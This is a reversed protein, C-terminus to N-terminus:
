DHMGGVVNLRCTPQIQEVQCFADASLTQLASRYVAATRSLMQPLTFDCEYRRRGEEGMAVRLSPDAILRELAQRLEVEDGMPVLFGSRGNTVAEAVGGVNSAVVPLGARMSELITLPLGEWRSALVSVQARALLEAIDAREGWFTVRNGLSRADAELQSRLPGDGVLDLHFNHRIGCLARLLLGHEKVAVLRAVMIIRPYQRCGPNARHPTDDIGNWITFLKRPHIIRRQAAFERTAKSVAIIRCDIRGALRELQLAIMQQRRTFFTAFSWTHATFVVPTGCLFGAVRAVMGAKSTHGHILDPKWANRV